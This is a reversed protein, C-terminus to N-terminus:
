DLADSLTEIREQIKLIKEQGNGGILISDEHSYEAVFGIIEDLNNAVEIRGEYGISKLRYLADEVTDDLGPFLIIVEPNSDAVVNLIDFRHKENVRPTGIFTAYFYKEDLLSKIADSNDTKGIFIKSDNLEFIKLRGEVAEFNKLAPNIVDDSVGLYRGISYALGANLKNFRGFLRLNKPYEEYSLVKSSDYFGELTALKPLDVDFNDSFDIEDSNGFEKFCDLSKDVFVIKDKSFTILSNKYNEMSGHIDMHDNGLNTIGVMNFDFFYDCYALTMDCVEVLIIDYEEKEAELIIDCYGNFGGGANGGVLVKKGAAELVAKLMSVTTTKGNTGTIAITFIEKHRTFVDNIHKGSNIINDALETNWLSPSLVVADCTSINDMDNFGLDIVLKETSITIYDKKTFFNIDSYAIELDELDLDTKLDSAYVYCGDKLLSKTAKKGEVGLGIVAVRM